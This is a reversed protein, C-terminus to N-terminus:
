NTSSAIGPRCRMPRGSFQAVPTIPCMWCLLTGAALRRSEFRRNRRSSVGDKDWDRASLSATLWDDRGVTFEKRYTAFSNFATDWDPGYDNRYWLGSDDMITDFPLSYDERVWSADQGNLPTSFDEAYLLTWNTQPRVYRFTAWISWPGVAGEFRARVRWRYRGDHALATQVTHAVDGNVGPVVTATELVRTAGNAAIEAFEFHYDFVGPVFRGAAATSVLTPATDTVTGGSAPSQPVPATVKLAFEQGALPIYLEGVLVFTFAAARVQHVTM